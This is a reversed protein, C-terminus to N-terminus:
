EGTGGGAVSVYKSLDRQVPAAVDVGNTIEHRGAKDYVVLVPVNVIM